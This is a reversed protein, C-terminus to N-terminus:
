FKHYFADSIIIFVFLISIIFKLNQKDTFNERNESSRHIRWVCKQLARIAIFKLVVIGQYFNLVVKSGKKGEIQQNIM